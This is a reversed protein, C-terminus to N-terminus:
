RGGDFAGKDGVACCWVVGFGMSMRNEDGECVIDVLVRCRMESHRGGLGRRGVGTALLGFVFLNSEAEAGLAGVHEVGLLVLLHMFQLKCAPCTEVGLVRLRRANEAIDQVRARALGGTHGLVDATIRRNTAGKSAIGRGM